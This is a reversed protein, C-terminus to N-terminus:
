AYKLEDNLTQKVLQIRALVERMAISDSHLKLSNNRIFELSALEKALGQINDGNKPFGILVGKAFAKSVLQENKGIEDKDKVIIDPIVLLFEGFASGQTQFSDI